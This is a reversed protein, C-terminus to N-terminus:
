RPQSKRVRSQDTRLAVLHRLAWNALMIQVTQEASPTLRETQNDRAAAAGSRRSPRSGLLPNPASAPNGLRVELERRNPSARHATLSARVSDKRKNMHPLIRPIHM